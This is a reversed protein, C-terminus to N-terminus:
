TKNLLYDFDKERRKIKKVLGRHVPIDVETNGTNQFELFNSGPNPVNRLILLILFIEPSKGCLKGVYSAVKKKM